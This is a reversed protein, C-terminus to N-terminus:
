RGGNAEWWRVVGLLSDPIPQKVPDPVGLFRRFELVWFFGMLLKDMVRQQIQAGTEWRCLTSESIQLYNALQRQKLHLSERQQRIESPLLLGAALRLADSLRRDAADDLVITGCNDCRAADLDNVSVPYKRGDHELEASYSPLTVQNVARERCKGCKWPFPKM